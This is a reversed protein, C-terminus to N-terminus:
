RLRTSRMVSQARLFRLSEAISPPEIGGMEVMSHRNSVRGAFVAAFPNERTVTASNSMSSGSPAYLGTTRVGADGIHRKMYSDHLAFMDDTPPTFREATPAEDEIYIAEFVAQNLRRRGEDSAKSYLAYVNALAELQARVYEAGGRLQLDTAALQASIRSREDTLAALRTRIRDRPLTGDAALDLLNEEKASVSGLQAELQRRLERQSKDQDALTEDIVTGVAHLFDAPLERRRYHETVADEIRDRNHHPQQCTGDRRGPCFFYFYETGRRGVARQLILRRDTGRERRCEGCFLTGKLYHAYKRRREGAYRRSRMVEQVRSFLDLDVLPEHRGPYEEGEYTVYGLYYRDSLMQHVKNVSVPGAPHRATARTRLGRDTLEDVLDELTYKNTAYLEFAMRVFPAREEDVAISRVQRGEFDDIVNRYGLKARGLTGGRKAKEGMKYAIDAGSERSQYENFVALMGQMLQGVPTQDIAETASVLTVGRKKLDVGVIAEDYRNRALRSLKYVVVYDVDKENRIRDLMQQFAVRKTMETGSKGPEVYEDVVTLGLQAAKRLCAQRQAPLSNGEPDYDTNVQGLSSVRLYLVARAGAPVQELDLTADLLADLALQEPAPADPQDNM